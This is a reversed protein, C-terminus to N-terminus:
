FSVHNMVNVCCKRDKHFVKFQYPNLLTLIEKFFSIPLTINGNYTYMYMPQSVDDFIHSWWNVLIRSKPM